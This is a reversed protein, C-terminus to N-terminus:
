VILHILWSKFQSSKYIHHSLQVTNLFTNTYITNVIDHLNLLASLRTLYTWPTGMFVFPDWQHCATKYKLAESRFIKSDEVYTSHRLIKSKSMEGIWLAWRTFAIKSSHQDFTRVTYVPRQWHGEFSPDVNHNNTCNQKSSAAHQRGCQRKHVLHTWLM